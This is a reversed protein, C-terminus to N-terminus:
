RHSVVEEEQLSQNGSCAASPQTLMKGNQGRGVNRGVSISFLMAFMTRRTRERVTAFPQLPFPLSHLLGPSLSVFSLQNVM